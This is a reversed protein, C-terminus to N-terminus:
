IPQQLSRADDMVYKISTYPVHFVKKENKNGRTNEILRTSKLSVNNLDSLYSEPIEPFGM